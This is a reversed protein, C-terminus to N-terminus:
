PSYYQSEEDRDAKRASIIRVSQLGDSSRHTHCVVCVIGKETRGISIWRDESSSHEHDFITLVNPDLFVPIVAAFSLGHKKRNTADKVADWEFRM